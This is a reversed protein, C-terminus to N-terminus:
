MHDLIYTAAMSDCGIFQIVWMIQLIHELGCTSKNAYQLFHLHFPIPLSRIEYCNFHSVLIDVRITSYVVFFETFRSVFTASSNKRVIVWERKKIIERPKYFPDSLLCVLSFLAIRRRFCM